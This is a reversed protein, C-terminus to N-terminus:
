IGIVLNVSNHSYFCLILIFSGFECHFCLPVYCIMSRSCQYLDSGQLVSWEYTFAVCWSHLLEFSSFNGRQSGLVARQRQLPHLNETAPGLLAGGVQKKQKCPLQTLYIGIGRCVFTSTQGTLVQAYQIELRTSVMEQLPKVQQGRRSFHGTKTM